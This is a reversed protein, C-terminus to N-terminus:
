IKSCMNIKISTLKITMVFIVRQPITLYCQLGITQKKLTKSKGTDYHFWKCAKEFNPSTAFDKIVKFGLRSYLSKLRAEVIFTATTKKKSQFHYMPFTCFFPLLVMGVWQKPEHHLMQIITLAVWRQLQTIWLCVKLNIQTPFWLLQYWIVTFILPGMKMHQRLHIINKIM